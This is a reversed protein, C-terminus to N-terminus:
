RSADPRLHKELLKAGVFHIGARDLRTRYKEFPVFRSRGSAAWLWRDIVVGSRLHSRLLSAAARKKEIVADVESGVAPHVEFAVLAGAPGHGLVYDWGKDKGRTLTTERDLALSARFSPRLPDDIHERDAQTMAGLGREIRERLDSSDVFAKKM